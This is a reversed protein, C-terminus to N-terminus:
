LSNITNAFSFHFSLEHSAPCHTWCDRGSSPACVYYPEYVAQGNAYLKNSCINCTSACQQNCIKCYPQCVKNSTSGNRPNTARDARDIAQMLAARILLETLHLEQVYNELASLKEALHSDITVPTSAADATTDDPPNTPADKSEPEVTFKVLSGEKLMDWCATDSGIDVILRGVQGLCFVLHGLVSRLKRWEQFYSIVIPAIFM